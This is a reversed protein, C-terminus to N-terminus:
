EFVQRCSINLRRTKMYGRWKEFAKEQMERVDRESKGDEKDSDHLDIEVDGSSGVPWDRMFDPCTNPLVKPMAHWAWRAEGDLVLVDGSRIRLTITKTEADDKEKEHGQEENAEVSDRALCFLGECGLSFSALRRECMESVDRHVPMYDKGAYLLVVGSQAEFTNAFLSRTLAAIDPPFPTIGTKTSSDSLDSDDSPLPDPRPYSRTPWDYQTGLTLWRLKRLLFQSITLPIKANGKSKGDEDNKKVLPYLLNSSGLQPPLTFFSLFKSPASKRSSLPTSDAPPDEPAPYLVSTGNLTPHPVAYDANINTKHRPNALDRHLLRSLLLLQTEPPLLQTCVQLGLHM